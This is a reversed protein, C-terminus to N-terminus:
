KKRAIILVYGFQNKRKALQYGSRCPLHEGPDLGAFVLRAATEKLLHDHTESQVVECKRCQLMEFIRPLSLAGQFCNIFDGRQYTELEPVRDRRYVDSWVLIGEPELVRLIESLAHNCDQVLSLVCECFVARFQCSTFPLEEVRGNILLSKAESVPNGLLYHSRDVGVIHFGRRTLHGVTKGPGCGVDLIRSGPELNCQGLARETLLLGGPRLAAELAERLEPVEYAPSKQVALSM